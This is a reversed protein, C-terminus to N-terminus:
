RDRRKGGKWVRPKRAPEAKKEKMANVDLLGAIPEIEIKRGAIDFRRCISDVMPVLVEGSPGLVVLLDTAGEDIRAVQGVAEGGTTVVACGLLEHYWFQGAGLAPLAADPVRLECGRFVEADSISAVGALGIIPRGDHFRCDTVEISATEGARRYWITAGPAFRAEAFDTEPAVLVQGRNGHPRVIRGVLVM